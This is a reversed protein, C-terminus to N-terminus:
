SCVKAPPKQLAQLNQKLAGIESRTEKTERQLDDVKVEKKPQIPRDYIPGLDEKPQQVETKSTEQALPQTPSPEQLEPNSIKPHSTKDECTRRFHGRKGCKSCKQPKNPKKKSSKSVPSSIKEAQEKAKKAEM